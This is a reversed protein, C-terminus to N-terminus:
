TRLGSFFPEPRTGYKLEVCPFLRHALIISTVYTVYLSYVMSLRCEATVKATDYFRTSLYIIYLSFFFRKGTAALARATRTWPVSLARSLAGATPYLVPPRILSPSRSRSLVLSHLFTVNDVSDHTRRSLVVVTALEYAVNVVRHRSNDDDDGVLELWNRAITENARERAHVTDTVLM